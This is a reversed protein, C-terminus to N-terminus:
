KVTWLNVWASPRAEYQLDTGLGDQPNRVIRLRTAKVIAAEQWLCRAEKEQDTM